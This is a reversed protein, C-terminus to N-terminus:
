MLPKLLRLADSELPCSRIVDEVDKTFLDISYAAMQLQVARLLSLVVRFSKRACICRDM